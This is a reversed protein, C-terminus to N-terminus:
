YNEKDDPTMELIMQRLKASVKCDPTVPAVVPESSTVAAANVSVTAASRTQRTVQSVKTVITDQQSTSSVNVANNANNNNTTSNATSANLRKGFNNLTSSQNDNPTNILNQSLAGLTSRGNHYLVSSSTSTSSAPKASSQPTISMAAALASQVRSSMPTSTSSNNTNNTNNTSNTMTSSTANMNGNSSYVGRLASINNVNGNSISTSNHAALGSSIKM